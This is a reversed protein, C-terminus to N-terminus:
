GRERMREKYREKQELLKSSPRESNFFYINGEM